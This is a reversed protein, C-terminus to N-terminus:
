SKVARLRRFIVNVPGQPMSLTVAQGTDLASKPLSATLPVEYPVSQARTGQVLTTGPPVTLTLNVEITEGEERFTGDYKVGGADAGIVTGQQLILLGIGWDAAGRFTISYIGDIM